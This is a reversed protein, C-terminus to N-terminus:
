KVLSQDIIKQSSNTLNDNNNEIKDGLKKLDRIEQSSQEEPTPQKCATLFMGLFVILCLKKM